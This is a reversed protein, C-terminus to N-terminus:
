CVIWSRAESFGNVTLDANVGDRSVNWLSPACLVSHFVVPPVDFLFYPMYSVPEDAARQPVTKLWLVRTIALHQGKGPLLLVKAVEVSPLCLEM